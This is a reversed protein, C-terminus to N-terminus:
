LKMNRKHFVFDFMLADHMDHIYNLKDLLCSFYKKINLLYVFLFCFSVFQIFSFALTPM